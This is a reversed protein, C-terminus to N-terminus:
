TKTGPYYFDSALRPVEDSQKHLHLAYLAVVGGAMTAWAGGSVDNLHAIMSGGHGTLALAGLVIATIGGAFDLFNCLPRVKSGGKTLLGDANTCALRSGIISFM